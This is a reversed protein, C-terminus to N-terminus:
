RNPQRVSFASVLYEKMRHRNRLAPKTLWKNIFHGSIISLTLVIFFKAVSAYAFDFDILKMVVSNIPVHVLYLEYSILGVWPLHFCGFVTNLPSGEKQMLWLVLATSFIVYCTVDLWIASSRYGEPDVYSLSMGYVIKGIALLVLLQFCRRFLSNSAWRSLTASDSFVLFGLLTGVLFGDFRGLLTWWHTGYYRGMTAVLVLLVVAWLYRRNIKRVHVFITFFMLGWLVYYQEELILSWTHTLEPIRPFVERSWLLLDLNQYLLLYPLTQFQERSGTVFVLLEWMLMIGLFAPFLRAARYLMFTGFGDGRDRLTLMTRTILMGSMVFFFDMVGWWWAILHHLNSHYAVIGIAAIARASDLNDFRHLGGISDLRRSPWQNINLM